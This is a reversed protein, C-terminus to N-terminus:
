GAVCVCRLPSRFRMTSSFGSSVTSLHRAGHIGTIEARGGGEASWSCACFLSGPFGGSTQVCPFASSRRSLGAASTVICLPLLSKRLVLSLSLGFRVPGARILELYPIRCSCPCSVPFFTLPFAEVPPWCAKSPKIVTDGHLLGEFLTLDGGWGLNSHCVTFLVTCSLSSLYSKSSYAPIHLFLFYFHIQFVAQVDAKIELGPDLGPDLSPDSSSRQCLRLPFLSVQRCM